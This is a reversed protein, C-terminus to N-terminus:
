ERAPRARAEANENGRDHGASGRRRVSDGVKVDLSLMLGAMGCLVAGEPLEKSNPKEIEAASGTGASGWRRFGSM